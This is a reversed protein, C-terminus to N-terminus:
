RSRYPLKRVMQGGLWIEVNYTGTLGEVQGVADSVTTAAIELTTEITGDPHILKARYGHDTKHQLDSDTM